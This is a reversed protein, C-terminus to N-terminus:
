RAAPSVEAQLVERAPRPPRGILDQVTTSVPASYGDRTARGFTAYMQAVPEPM